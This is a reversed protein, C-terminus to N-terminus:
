DGIKLGRRGTGAPGPFGPLPQLALRLLLFLGPLLQGFLFLAQGGGTLVHLVLQVAATRLQFRQGSGKLFLISKPALQGPAVIRLPLM